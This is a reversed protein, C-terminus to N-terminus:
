EDLGEIEVEINKTDNAGVDTMADEVTERIVDTFYSEETYSSPLEDKKFVADFQVHVLVNRSM